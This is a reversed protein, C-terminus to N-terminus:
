QGPHDRLWIDLERVATLSDTSWEIHSKDPLKAPDVFRCLTESILLPASPTDRRTVRASPNIVLPAKDRNLVEEPLVGRMAERILRKRRAWPIPPTHLMFTLVRLDLFPHRCDLPTGSVASDHSELYSQWISTGFLAMARPRWSHGQVRVENGAQIRATLDLRKVLDKNLWQPLRPQSLVEAQQGRSSMKRLTILWERAGKSYLYETVASGLRKWHRKEVLWHLYSRWEFSLANDPGEGFFWVKALSAMESEAVRRLNSAMSPGGPEAAAMHLKLHRDYLDDVALLTHALKLKKAVLTSFYKESDPNLHAFYNTYALVRSADGAVQVTKAALTTSDLGGSMAIGVRGPPLRDKVARALVEHFHDLYKSRERYVIPDGLEMKWYRKVTSHSRAVVLVHAPALRKIRKYVTRDIDVSYGHILFDSIWLEDLEETLGACCVMPLSDSVVWTKKTQGYFMPRVGLHDRACFLIQREDDWLAFCFDGRLHSICNSGWKEYARLCLLADSQTESASLIMCLDDRGDLRIRGLLWLRGDLNVAHRVDKDELNPEPDTWIFAIHGASGLLQINRPLADQQILAKGIPMGDSNFVACFSM